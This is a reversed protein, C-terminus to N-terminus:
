RKLGAPWQNNNEEMVKCVWWQTYSSRWWACLCTDVGFGIIFPIAIIFGAVGALIIGMLPWALLNLGYSLLLMGLAKRLKDRGVSTHDGEMMGMVLFVFFAIQPLYTVVTVIIFIIGASPAWGAVGNGIV